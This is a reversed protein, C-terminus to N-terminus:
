LLIISNNFYLSNADNNIYNLNIIYRKFDKMCILSKIKMM